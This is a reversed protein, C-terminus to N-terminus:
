NKDQDEASDLGSGLGPRGRRIHGRIEGAPYKSSHVNVYAAGSLAAVVAEDFQSPAIGQDDPGIIDSAIINGTIEKDVECTPKGGGGCLFAIVGGATWPTGFHIHAVTPTGELKSFKLSYALTNKDTLKAKFEGIGPTSLSKPVEQFGNLRAKWTGRKFTDQDDALAVQMTVVALLLASAAAISYKKM